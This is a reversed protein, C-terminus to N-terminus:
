PFTTIRWRTPATTWWTRASSAERGLRKRISSTWGSATAPSSRSGPFPGSPRGISGRYQVILADADAAAEAIGKGDKCALGIVEVGIPGLVQKEIENDPFDFDTIYVKHGGM